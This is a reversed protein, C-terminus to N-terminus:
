HLIVRLDVARTPDPADVVGTPVDLPWWIRWVVDVYVTPGDGFLRKAPGKSNWAVEVCEGPGVSGAVTTGRRPRVWFPPAVSVRVEDGDHDLSIPAVQVRETGLVVGEPGAVVFRVGDDVAAAVDTGVDLPEPVARFGARSEADRWTEKGTVLEGSTVLVVASDM